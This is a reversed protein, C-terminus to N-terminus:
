CVFSARFYCLLDCQFERQTTQHLRWKVSCTFSFWGKVELGVSVSVTGAENRAECFYRGSDRESVQSIDLTAVSNLFSMSHTVSQHIEAGDRFWRVSIEPTGVVKCEFVKRDGVRVLSVEAPAETFSPPESFSVHM